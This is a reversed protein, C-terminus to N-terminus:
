HIASIKKERERDRVPACTNINEQQQLLSASTQAASTNPQASGAFEWHPEQLSGWGCFVFLCSWSVLHSSLLHFCSSPIFEENWIKGTIRTWEWKASWPTNLSFKAWLSTRSLQFLLFHCKSDATSVPTRPSLQANTRRRPHSGQSPYKWSKAKFISPRSLPGWYERSHESQSTASYHCLEMVEEWRKPLLIAGQGGKHNTNSPSTEQCQIGSLNQRLCSLQGALTAPLLPFGKGWARAGCRPQAAGQGCPLSLQIEKQPGESESSLIWIQFCGHCFKHSWEQGTEHGKMPSTGAISKLMHGENDLHFSFAWLASCGLRSLLLFNHPALCM